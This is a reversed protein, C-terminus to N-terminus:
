LAMITDAYGFFQPSPLFIQPETRKIVLAEEEEEETEGGVEKADPGGWCAYLLVQEVFLACRFRFIM